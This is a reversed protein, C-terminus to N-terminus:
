LKPVSNNTNQETTMFCHSTPIQRTSLLVHSKTKICQLKFNMFNMYTINAYKMEVECVVSARYSLSILHYQQHFYNSNIPVTMHLEYILETCINKINSYKTSATAV